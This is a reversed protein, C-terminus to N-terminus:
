FARVARVLNILSGKGYNGGQFGTSFSQAWAAAASNGETSTWYKTNSFVTGGYRQISQYITFRRQYMENLEDKSPLFWDSYGNYVMDFCLKAAYNGQGQTAVITNTNTQGTGIDTGTAGVLLGSTGWPMRGLIDGGIDVQNRTACVLGHIEGSVYGDDGDEFIYFVVGGQYYDGIAVPVLEHYPSPPGYAQTDDGAPDNVGEHRLITGGRHVGTGDHVAYRGVSWDFYLGSPSGLELTTENIKEGSANFVEYKSEWGGKPFYYYNGDWAFTGGSATHNDGPPTGICKNWTLPMSQLFTLENSYEQTRYWRVAGVGTSDYCLFEDASASMLHCGEAYNDSFVASQVNEVFGTAPNIRGIYIQDSTASYQRANTFVITNTNPVHVPRSLRKDEGWHTINFVQGDTPIINDPYYPWGSEDPSHRWYERSVFYTSIVVNATRIWVSNMLNNTYIFTREIDDFVTTYNPSDGTLSVANKFATLDVANGFNGSREPLEVRWVIKSDPGTRGIGENKNETPDIEIEGATDWGTDSDYTTTIDLPLNQATTWVSVASHANWYAQRESYSDAGRNLSLTVRTSISMIIVALILIMVVAFLSMMWGRNYKNAVIM